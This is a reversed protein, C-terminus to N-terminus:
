IRKVCLGIEKFCMEKQHGTKVDVGLWMGSLHLHGIFSLYNFYPKEVQKNIMYIHDDSLAFKPLTSMPLDFLAFPAFDIEFICLGSM